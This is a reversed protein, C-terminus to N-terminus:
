ASGGSAPGPDDDPLVTTAAYVRVWRGDEPRTAPDEVRGVYRLLLAQLEANVEELEARTMWTTSGGSTQTGDWGPPAPRTLRERVRGAEWDVFAQGFALAARRGEDDLASPDVDQRYSVARWPKDRGVQEAREVFGYKELQRLHFSCSAVSEGTARACETATAQERTGLVEILRLRLPHSLARTAQPDRLPEPPTVM